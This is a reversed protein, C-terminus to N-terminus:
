AAEGSFLSARKPFGRKLATSIALADRCDSLGDLASPHDGFNEVAKGYLGAFEVCEGYSLARDYSELYLQELRGGKDESKHKMSPLVKSWFVFNGRPNGLCGILREVEAADMSPPAEKEWIEFCHALWDAMPEDSSKLEDLIDKNIKM